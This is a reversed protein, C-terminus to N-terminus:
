WHSWSATASMQRMRPPRFLEVVDATLWRQRFVWFTNTEPGGVSTGLNFLSSCPCFHQGRRYWCDVSSPLSMTQLMSLSEASASFAISSLGWKPNPRTVTRTDRPGLGLLAARCYIVTHRSPTTCTSDILWRYGAVVWCSRDRSCNAVPVVALRGSSTSHAVRNLKYLKIQM